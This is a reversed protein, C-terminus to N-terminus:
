PQKEKEKEQAKEKPDAPATARTWLAARDAADLDDLERGFVEALVEFFEGPTALERKVPDTHAEVRSLTRGRLVDMGTADRRLVALTRVFGSDAATTLRVHEAAFDAMTAPASRFNMVPFPGGVNDFSWGTRNKLPTLTYAFGGQLWHGERLPLPEYPGDGLGTDVFYAGADGNTGGDGPVRVSLALHNGSVKRSARDDYVGGVHRTVEYGLAELLLAFAGNLHFCYGGRGAALRRASGEPDIGPPRGLQIDLNEYPVRGVHARQLAFLAAVSPPGPEDIGLRRLYAGVLEPSLGSTM